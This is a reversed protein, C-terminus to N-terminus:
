CKNRLQPVVSVKTHNTYALIVELMELISQESEAFELQDEFFALLWQDVREAASTSPKLQLFRQLLPDTLSAVLQNPL